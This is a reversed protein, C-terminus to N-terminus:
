PGASDQQEVKEGLCAPQSQTSPELERGDSHSTPVSVVSGDRPLYELGIFLNFTYVTCSYAETNGSLNFSYVTYSYTEIDETFNFTHTYIFLSFIFTFITFYENYTTWKLKWPINWCALM